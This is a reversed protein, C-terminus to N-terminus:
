FRVSFTKFNRRFKIMTLQPGAEARVNDMIWALVSELMRRTEGYIDAGRDFSGIM